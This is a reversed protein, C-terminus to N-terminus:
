SSPQIGFLLWAHLASNSQSSFVALYVYRDGTTNVEIGPEAGIAGSWGLLLCRWGKACSLM